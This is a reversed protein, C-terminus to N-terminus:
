GLNIIRFYYNVNLDLKIVKVLVFKMSILLDILYKIDWFIIPVFICFRPEM